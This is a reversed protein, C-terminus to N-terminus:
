PLSNLALWYYTLRQISLNTSRDDLASRIAEDTPFNKLVETTSGDDLQRLQYTNGDADRRSIPTSSGEVYNNDIFVVLSGPKLRQHFGDLFRSLDARTLHSWWFAALAADFEGAVTQLDFANGRQFIVNGRPIPKTRAIALVEENLDTAAVSHATRAVIQTWWGTGCAVELVRRGSFSAEMSERLARLDAQREPKQYIREYEPARKAYYAALADM